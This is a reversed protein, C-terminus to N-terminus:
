KKGLELFPRATNLIRLHREQWGDLALVEVIDLWDYHDHEWSLNVSATEAVGLYGLMLYYSKRFTYGFTEIIHVNQVSLGTEEQAERVAGDIPNEGFNIGGGPLDVRGPMPTKDSRWLVLLRGQKDLIVVKAVICATAPLLPNIRGLLQSLSSLEAMEAQTLKRQHSLQSLEDFRATQDM